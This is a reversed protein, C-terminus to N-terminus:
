GLAQFLVPTSYIDSSFESPFPRCCVLSLMNFFSISLHFSPAAMQPFLSSTPATMLVCALSSRFEADSSPPTRWYGDITSSCSMECCSYFTSSSVGIGLISLFLHTLAHSEYGSVWHNPSYVHPESMEGEGWMVCRAKLWQEGWKALVQNRGSRQRGSGETPDGQYM